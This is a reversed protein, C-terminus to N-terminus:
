ASNIAEVLAACKRFKQEIAKLKRSDFGMMLSLRTPEPSPGESCAALLWLLEQPECQKACLKDFSEKAFAAREIERRLYDLAKTRLETIRPDSGSRVEALAEEFIRTLDLFDSEEGTEAAARVRTDMTGSRTTEDDPGIPLQEPAPRGAGTQKVSDNSEETMKR